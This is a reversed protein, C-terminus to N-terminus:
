EPRGDLVEQRRGCIAVREGDKAFRMATARGLGTGGGTVLVKRTAESMRNGGGRM